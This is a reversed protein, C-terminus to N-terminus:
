NEIIQPGSLLLFRYTSAITWLDGRLMEENGSLVLRKEM